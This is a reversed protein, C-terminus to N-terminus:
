VTFNPALIRLSLMTAKGLEHQINVKGNYLGGNVRVINTLFYKYEILYATIQRNM